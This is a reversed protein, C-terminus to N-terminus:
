SFSYVIHGSLLTINFIWISHLQVKCIQLCKDTVFKSNIYSWTSSEEMHTFHVVCMDFIVNLIQIVKVYFKIKQANIKTYVCTANENYSVQINEFKPLFSNGSLILFLILFLAVSIYMYFYVNICFQLYIDM